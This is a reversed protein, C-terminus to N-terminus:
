CTFVGSTCAQCVVPFAPDPPAWPYDANTTHCLLHLRSGTLLKLPGCSQTPDEPLKSVNTSTGVTIFVSEQTRLDEM